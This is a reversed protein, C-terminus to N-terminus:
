CRLHTGLLEPRALHLQGFLLLPRCYHAAPQSTFGYGPRSARERTRSTGPALVRSPNSQETPGSRRTRPAPGLPSRDISRSAPARRAAVRVLVFRAPPPRAFDRAPRRRYVRSPRLGLSCGAPSASIMHRVGPVRPLTLAWFGRSTPGAWGSRRAPNGVPCVTRPHKGASVRRIGETLLFSRLAFGV